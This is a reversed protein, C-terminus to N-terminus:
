SRKGDAAAPIIPHSGTVGKLGALFMAASLSLIPGAVNFLARSTNGVADNYAGLGLAGFFALASALVWPRPLRGLRMVGLPLLWIFVYWFTHGLICGRLGALFGPGGRLYGALEWPWVRGGAAVSIAITATTLSAVGLAVIWALRSLQLRDRRVESVWWGFAFMASLPVFTEKALAGFVGWLPLLFWRGSLLSWVIVMVFCGEASDILGVLNLNAVCFNLLYLTAGLLATASDLTLRYGIAVLLCATTATFIANAILLGFLAPDWTGLHGRALWYFPKAVYPVLVRYYNESQALRALPGSAEPAPQPRRGVVIDRCVAM